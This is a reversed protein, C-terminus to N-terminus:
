GNDVKASSWPRIGPTSEGFSTSRGVKATSTAAAAPIALRTSRRIGGFFHLIGRADARPPKKLSM